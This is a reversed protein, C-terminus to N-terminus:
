PLAVNATPGHKLSEIAVEEGLTGSVFIFPIHPAKEKAIKLASLGDFGPMANDALVSDFDHQELAATFDKGTNVRLSEVIFGDAKLFEDQLEVDMRNDDLHLIRMKTQTLQPQEAM